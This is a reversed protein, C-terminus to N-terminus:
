NPIKPYTQFPALSIRKLVRARLAFIHFITIPNLFKRENRNLPCPLRRLGHPRLPRDLRPRLSPPTPPLTTAQTGHLNKPNGKSPLHNVKHNFVPSPPPVKRQVSFGVATGLAIPLLISAAPNQFVMAPLTLSPIYTTM